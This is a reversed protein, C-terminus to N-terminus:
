KLGAKRLAALFRESEVQDTYPLMQRFLALSNKPSIRQAEAAEARAEDERGLESYVAALHGHAGLHNPNRALVRKLATIAEEYRRLLRYAHGLPYSHYAANQPDLRMAKEVLGIAEEPRGAFTLIDALGAYGYANPALAIAREAEAIARAPQKKRLYIGGLLTHAYPLSDDLSVAKQALAFAQDLTQPPNQSWQFAWDLFHSSGLAAYAAAYQPDLEIAKEYM